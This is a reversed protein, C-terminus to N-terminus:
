KRRAAQGGADHAPLVQKYYPHDAPKVDTASAIFVIWKGDPSIHPFWNNYEDNTVQEQDNRRAEHALDADTGSRTSNFYIYKGDPSYEPGDDLGPLRHAPKRAAATRRRDQLHRVRRRPRRHLRAVEGDPSWGHLYSPTIPTIRKPM